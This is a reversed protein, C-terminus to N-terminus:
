IDGSGRKVVPFHFPLNRLDIINEFKSDILKFCSGPSKYSPRSCSIEIAKLRQSDDEEQYDARYHAGRSETRMLAAKCVMEGVTLM